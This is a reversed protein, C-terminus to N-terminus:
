LIRLFINFSSFIILIPSPNHLALPFPSPPLSYEEIALLLKPSCTNAKHLDIVSPFPLPSKDSFKLTDRTYTIHSDTTPIPKNFWKDNYLVIYLAKKFPNVLPAHTRNLYWTETSDIPERPKLSPPLPYLDHAM